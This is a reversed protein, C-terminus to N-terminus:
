NLESRGPEQNNADSVEQRTVGILSVANVCLIRDGVNSLFNEYGCGPGLLFRSTNLLFTFQTYFAISHISPFRLSHQRGVSIRGDAAAAGNPNITRM